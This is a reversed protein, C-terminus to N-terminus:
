QMVGLVAILAITFAAAFAAAILGLMYSIQGLQHNFNSNGTFTKQLAAETAAPAIKKTGDM